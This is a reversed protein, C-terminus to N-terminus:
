GCREVLADRAAARSANYGYWPARFDRECLRELLDAADPVALEDLRDVITPVADASLEGLHRVDLGQGTSANDINYNVILRDPSIVLLTLVMATWATGIAPGFWARHAAVGLQHLAFIVLAVAIFVAYAFAWIRARTLDFAEIYLLLRSIAVVDIAVTLAVVTTALIRFRRLATADFPALSRLPVLVALTLGAVWVLQFFGNRAYEARTLNEAALIADAGGFATVIQTTVFAGFLATLAGLIVLVETSGLLPQTGALAETRPEAARSVFSGIFLASAVAMILHGIFSANIFGDFLNAFVADASALLVGLIVLVPISLAVGRLVGAADQGVRLRRLPRALFPIQLVLHSCWRAGEVVAWRFGSPIRPANVLGVAAIAAALMTVVAIQNPGSSTRLLLWPALVVIAPLARLFTTTTSRRGIVLATVGLGIYAVTAAGALSSRLALDGAIGALVLVLVEAARVSGNNPIPGTPPRTPPTSQSSPPPPPPPPQVWVATPPQNPPPPPLTSMSM